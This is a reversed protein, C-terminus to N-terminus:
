DFARVKRSDGIELTSYFGEKLKLVAFDKIRDVKLIKEVPVTNGNSFIADVSFSDVLVHYNTILTGNPKVVFGTGTSITQGSKGKCVLLVIASKNVEHAFTPSCLGVLLFGTFFLLFKQLIIKNMFLRENPGM